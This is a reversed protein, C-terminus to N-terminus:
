RRARRAALARQDILENGGNTGGALFHRHQRDIGVLGNLPPATSPSRTRIFRWAASPPTKTRLM